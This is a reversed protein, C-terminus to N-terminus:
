VQAVIGRLKEYVNSNIVFRNWHVQQWNGHAQDHLPEFSDNMQVWLISFHHPLFLKVQPLGIAHNGQCKIADLNLRRGSGFILELTYGLCKDSNFVM